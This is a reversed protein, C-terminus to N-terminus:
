HAHGHGDDALSPPRWTRRPKYPFRVDEVWWEYQKGKPLAKLIALAFQQQEPSDKSGPGHIEFLAFAFVPM